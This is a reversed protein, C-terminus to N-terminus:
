SKYFKTAKVGVLDQVTLIYLGTSLNAVDIKKQNAEGTKITVGMTNVISFMANQSVSGNISIQEVAPNPYISLKLPEIVSLEELVFVEELHTETGQFTFEIIPSYASVVNESCFTRLRVEYSKGNVLGKLSDTTEYHYETTWDGIGVERYQVEFLADTQADWTINVADETAEELSVGTPVAIMCDTTKIGSVIISFNQSKEKFNGKNTVLIIYEGFANAIEVREFPDVSNDGKAAADTANAASLKWPLFEKGDKLIRIDLDNVLAPTIDNLLGRNVYDAAPDTWSISAILTNNGDAKVIISYTDGENLIEESIISTYDKNTILEAARKSNMIGWGMKFDPGPADVDDATHLVIGKLTAAKMFSENLREYYEQLLLMSGTIGPTAMSTGSSTDYSTASSSNAAYINNGGGAIDPKIRSDDMPGFNSYNAVTASVLSGDTNIRTDAAAVTVGNKSAAFGLMLDFGDSSKGYIPAKNDGMRQSNGAASVMLYYPANFMIKDWDQSVKIYSGFYWEPVRDSKIGYSHNSLLLGNAAAESVEIKDRSWDNTTAKAKYAVGKAKEKVGSAILTGMVMTAHASIDNTADGVNARTDFEQHTALAVGGDWVGVQMGEGTLDLHLSGNSYLSSARSVQSVNDSFTSYYIPSGDPGVDQLEVFNGNELTESIKWGNSKAMSLVKTRSTTFDKKLESTFSHIKSVNYEGQIQLAQERNQGFTLVSTLLTLTLFIRKCTPLSLPINRDM